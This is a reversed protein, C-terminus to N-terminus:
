CKTYDEKNM